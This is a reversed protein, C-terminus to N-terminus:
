GNSVSFGISSRARNGRTDVAEVELVHEGDRLSASDWDHALQVRYRGDRWPHNQRTWPAYVTDFLSPAPITGSFDIATRWPGGAGRGGRIRWRVVAPMVPKDAWKGPVRLPTEDWTEAVLDFRGRLNTRPLAKGRREFSFTDITPRTTDTYPTLAGHRLPNVYRGGVLEAFHVHGWGRSIRGLITRYAVASQGNRVAPVIHWYAFVRGDQARIAITEPRQPEWVIRGSATAYVATGDPASIDIGFHFAKSESRGNAREGVRPDGFFGRVPHQRDFPQLPWGYGGAQAAGPAVLTALTAVLVLGPRRVSRAFSTAM